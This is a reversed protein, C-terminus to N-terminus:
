FNNSKSKDLILHTWGFLKASTLLIKQIEPSNKEIIIDLDRGIAPLKEYNRLIAYKINKKSLKSLIFDVTKEKLRKM